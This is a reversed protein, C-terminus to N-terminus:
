TVRMLAKLWPSVAIGALVGRREVIAIAEQRAKGRANIEDKVSDFAVVPQLSQLERRSKSVRHTKRGHAPADTETRM